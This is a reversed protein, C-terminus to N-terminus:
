KSSFFSSSVEKLADIADQHDHTQQEYLEIQNQRRIELTESNAKNIELNHETDQLATRYSISPISNLVFFCFVSELINEYEKQQIAPLLVAKQSM